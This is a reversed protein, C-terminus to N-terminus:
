RISMDHSIVPQAAERAAASAHPDPLLLGTIAHPNSALDRLAANVDMTTVAKIRDPWEEVDTVTHGTTLATGFAYGPMILSDRVFIAERQLREKADSITKDDIGQKALAQMEDQLAKELAQPRKGSGPTAAITFVADGRADPDYNIGIGSAIGQKEALDRYLIGAEGDDLVESLVELAYAENGKQTNYSPMVVDWEM